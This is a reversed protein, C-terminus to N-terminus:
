KKGCMAICKRGGQMSDCISKIYIMSDYHFKKLNDYTIKQEDVMALLIEVDKRQKQQKEEAMCKERNREKQELVNPIEPILGTGYFCYQLSCSAIGCECGVPDCKIPADIHEFFNIETQVNHCKSMMGTQM